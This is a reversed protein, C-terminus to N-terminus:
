NTDACNADTHLREYLEQFLLVNKFLVINEELFNTKHKKKLLNINIKIQSGNILFDNFISSASKSTQRQLKLMDNEIQRHCKVTQAANM